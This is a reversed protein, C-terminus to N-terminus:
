RYDPLVEKISFDKAFPDLFVVHGVVRRHQFDESLVVKAGNLTAAAYLQADWYPMQHAVVADLAVEVIEWSVPIVTTLSNLRYVEAVAEDHSLPAGLKRTVTWYFEALVQTSILPWGKAFLQSVLARAVPGKSLQARDHVYVLV